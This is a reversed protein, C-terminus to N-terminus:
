RRGRQVLSLQDMDLAPEGDAGANSPSVEV